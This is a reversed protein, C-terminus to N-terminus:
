KPQTIGGGGESHVGGGVSGGVGVVPLTINREATSFSYKSKM